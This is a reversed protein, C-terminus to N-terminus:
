NKIDIRVWSVKSIAIPTKFLYKDFSSSQGSVEKSFKALVDISHSEFLLTEDESLNSGRPLIVEFTGNGRGTAQVSIGKESLYVNIEKKPTSFMSVLVNNGNISEVVGLLANGSSYVKQGPFVKDVDTSAINVLFTDYPSISPRSIVRGFVTTDTALGLSTLRDIEERLVKNEDELYELSIIKEKLTEIIVGLGKKSHFVYKLYFAEDISSAFSVIPSFISLGATKLFRNLPFLVILVLFVLAINKTKFTKRRKSKQYLSSM